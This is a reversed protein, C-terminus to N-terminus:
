SRTAGGAAACAPVLGLAAREPAPVDDGRALVAAPHAPHVADTVRHARAQRIRAQPSGRVGLPGALPRRRTTPAESRLLAPRELEDRTGMTSGVVSLQLFYVRALDAPPMPGTTAGSVVIRGGPRLARLSHAWTAAGVTEM